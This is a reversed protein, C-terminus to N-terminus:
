FEKETRAGLKGFIRRPSKSTGIGTNLRRGMEKNKKNRTHRQTGGPWRAHEVPGATAEAFKTPARERKRERKGERKKKKKTKGRKKKGERRMRGEEREKKGVRQVLLALAGAMAGVPPGRQRGWGMRSCQRAGKTAEDRAHGVTATALARASARPASGAVCPAVEM